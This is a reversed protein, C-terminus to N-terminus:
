DCGNRCQEDPTGDRQLSWGIRQIPNIALASLRYKGLIQGLEDATTEIVKQFCSPLSLNITTADSDWM